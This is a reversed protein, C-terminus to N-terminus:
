RKNSIKPIEIVKPALDCEIGDVTVPVYSYSVQNVKIAKGRFKNMIETIEPRITKNDALTAYDFGGVTVISSFQDHYQYAEIGKKRLTVCLKEASIEALQLQSKKENVPLKSNEYLNTINADNRFVTRGTFTAVQVTYKRSCSLLSFERKNNLQRIFDLNDNSRAIYSAPLIPNLVAIPMPFPRRHPDSASKPFMKFMCDPSINRIKELDKQLEEQSQYDGVLIVYEIFVGGKNYKKNYASSKDSIRLNVDTKLDNKLNFDFKGAFVYANLKFKKRLEYVLINAKNEADKIKDTPKDKFSCLLILWPGNKENLIYVKDPDAEVENPNNIFRKM